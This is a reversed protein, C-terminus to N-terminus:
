RDKEYPVGIHDRTQEQRLVLTTFMFTLGYRGDPQRTVMPQQGFRVHWDYISFWVGPGVDILDPWRNTSKLFQLMSDRLAGVPAIEGALASKRTNQLEATIQRLAQVVERDDDQAAAAPMGEATSGFATGMMGGALMDRRSMLM